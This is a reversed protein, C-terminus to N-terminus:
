VLLRARRLLEEDALVGPAPADAIARGEVLMVCRDALRRAFFLDHTVLLVGAGRNLRRDVAAALTEAAIADLAKTPEDLVIV